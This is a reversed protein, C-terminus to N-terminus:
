KGTASISIPGVLPTEPLESLQPSQQHLITSIAAENFERTSPSSVFRRVIERAALSRQVALEADAERLTAEAERIRTEARKREMRTVTGIVCLVCGVPM